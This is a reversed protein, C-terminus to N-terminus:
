RSIGGQVWKGLRWDSFGTGCCGSRKECVWVNVLKGSFCEQGRFYKSMGRGEGADQLMLFVVTLIAPFPQTPLEQQFKPTSLYIPPYISTYLTSGFRLSPSQFHLYARRQSESQTTPPLTFSSFPSPKFFRTRLVFLFCSKIHSHFLIPYKEIHQRSIYLCAGLM